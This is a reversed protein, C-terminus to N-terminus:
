TDRSQISDRDVSSLNLSSQRSHIQNPAGSARSLLATVTLKVHRPAMLLQSALTLAMQKEAEAAPISWLWEIIVEAMAVPLLVSNPDDSSFPTLDDM